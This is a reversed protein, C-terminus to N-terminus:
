IKIYSGLRNWAFVFCSGRGNIQISNSHIRFKVYTIDVKLQDDFSQWRFMAYVVNLHSLERLEHIKANLYIIINYLLLDIPCRMDCSLLHQRM